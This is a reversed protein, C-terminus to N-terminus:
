FTCKSPNLRLNYRLLRQFVDNLDKIPDEGEKTKIIMDDIYVEVSKGRMGKFVKDMIHQYTAGANKLGFPM